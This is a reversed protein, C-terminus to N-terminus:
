EWNLPALFLGGQGWGAHTIFWSNEEQIVEAAHSNILGIQRGVDFNFPDESEYVATGSYGVVPGNFLYYHGNRFVVFPSETPGGWTGTKPHTLAISRKSWHLLDTSTRYAVIHNGGTPASNATYYMVWQGDIKTVFPDRADFGDIFLPNGAYREWHWLDKSFALSIKYQSGDPGGACYFMYYTGQNLIIHPAWLHWEGQKPDATLAFPQKAWQPSRLNKSTAHAFSKEDLPDAPETHTIGFMHWLGDPGKIITHDNIYWHQREGVSPDYIKSFTGASVIAQALAPLFLTLFIGIIAKM